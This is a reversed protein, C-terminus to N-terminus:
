RLAILVARNHRRRHEGFHRLLHQLVQANWVVNLHCRRFGPPRSTSAPSLPRHHAPVFAVDYHATRRPLFSRSPSSGNRPPTSPWACAPASSAFERAPPHPLTPRFLRADLVTCGPLLLCMRRTPLGPLLRARPLRELPRASRATARRQHHAQRNAPHNLLRCGCPQLYVNVAVARHPLLSRSRSRHCRPSAPPSHAPRAPPTLSEVIRERPPWFNREKKRDQHAPWAPQPFVSPRSLDRLFDM